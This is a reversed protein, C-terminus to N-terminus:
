YLSPHARHARMKAACDCFQFTYVPIESLHNAPISALGSGLEHVVRVGSMCAYECVLCVYMRISVRIHMRAHMSAYLYMCAQTCVYMYVYTCVNACRRFCAIVYSTCICMCVYACVCVSMSM